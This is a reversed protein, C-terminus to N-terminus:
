ALRIRLPARTGGKMSCSVPILLRRSAPEIGLRRIRTQARERLPVPDGACTAGVARQGIGFHGGLQPLPDHV